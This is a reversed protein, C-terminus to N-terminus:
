RGGWRALAWLTRFWANSEFPLQVLLGLIPLIWSSITASSQEWPYYQKGAGCLAKCGATTILLANVSASIGQVPGNYVLNSCTTRYCKQFAVACTDFNPRM